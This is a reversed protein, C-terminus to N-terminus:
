TSINSSFIIDLKTNIMSILEFFAKNTLLLDISQSHKAIKIWLEPPLIDYMKM